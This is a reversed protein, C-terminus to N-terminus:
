SGDWLPHMPDDLIGRVTDAVKEIPWYGGAGDLGLQEQQLQELWARLREELTRIM